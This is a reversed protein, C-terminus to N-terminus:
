KPGGGGSAGAGALASTQVAEPQKVTGKRYREAAKAAVEGSGGPVADTQQVPDPDIVQMAITSKLADGLGPDNATCGGILMAPATVLLMSLTRIRIM